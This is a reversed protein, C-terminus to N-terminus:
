TLILHKKMDTCNTGNNNIICIDLNYLLDNYSM